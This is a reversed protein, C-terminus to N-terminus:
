LTGGMGYLQGLPVGKAFSSTILILHGKTSPHWGLRSALSLLSQEIEGYYM